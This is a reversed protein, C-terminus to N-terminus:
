TRSGSMGCRVINERDGGVMYRSLWNNFYGSGWLCPFRVRRDTPREAKLGRGM